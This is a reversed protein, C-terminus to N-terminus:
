KDLLRLVDVPEAAKIPSRRYDKLNRTVILQAGFLVAASAQMADELDALGMDLASQMQERGTRPIEVFELLDRIFGGVNGRMIYNLNALSHWAVACRGPNRAAWGLLQGATDAFPKRGLALDLLVDTDILLRVPIM